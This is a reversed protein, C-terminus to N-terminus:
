DPAFSKSTVRNFGLEIGKLNSELMAPYKKGLTDSVLDKVAEIPIFGSAKAIAGLIVMNIRSKSQLALDLANITCLTGGYLRLHERAKEPTDATNVVVVSNEDTGATVPMADALAGHFLVLM